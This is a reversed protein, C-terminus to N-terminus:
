HKTVQWVDRALAPIRNRMLTGTSQLGKRKLEDILKTSTFYRDFYVLHGPVLSETLKLVAKEGQGFSSDDYDPYTTNGQYVIFDCVTGDPNALVFAKM